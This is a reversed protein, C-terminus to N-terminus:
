LEPARDLGLLGLGYATALHSSSGRHACRATETPGLPITFRDVPLKTHTALFIDLGSLDAGGGTLIIAHPQLAPPLHASAFARISAIGDLVPHLASQLIVGAGDHDRATATSAINTERKVREATLLDLDLGSAIAATLHTGSVPITISAIATAPTALIASTRTAGCDIALVTRDVAAHADPTHATVARGISTAEAELAIPTLGAAIIVAAYAEVLATPAAAVAITQTPTTAATPVVAADMVVDDPNVPLISPLTRRIAATDISGDVLEGHTATLYTRAEPLVTVAFASRVRRPVLHATTEKLLLALREPEHIDGRIIWGEPITREACALLMPTRRDKALLSRRGLVIVKLSREGIDIAYPPPLISM